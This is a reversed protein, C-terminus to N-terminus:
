RSDELHDEPPRTPWWSPRNLGSDPRRTKQYAPCVQRPHGHAQDTPVTGMHSLGM